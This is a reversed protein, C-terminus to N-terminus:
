IKDSPKPDPMNLKEVNRAGLSKMAQYLRIYCREKNPILEYSNLSIRM